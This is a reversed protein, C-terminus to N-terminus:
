NISPFCHPTRTPSTKPSMQRVSGSSPPTHAGCATTVSRPALYHFALGRTVLQLFIAGPPTLPGLFQWPHAKMHALALHRTQCFIIRAISLPQFLISCSLLFCICISSVEPLSEWAQNESEGSSGVAIGISLGKACSASSGPDPGYWESRSETKWPCGSGTEGSKRTEM